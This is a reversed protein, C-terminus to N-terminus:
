IAISKKAYNVVDDEDDSLVAVKIGNDIINSIAFSNSSNNSTATNYINYASFGISLLNKLGSASIYSKFLDVFSTNQLIQKATLTPLHEALAQKAIEKSGGTEITSTLSLLSGLIQMNKDGAFGGLTGVLSGFVSLGLMEPSMGVSIGAYITIAIVVIIEVIQIVTDYWYGNEHINLKFQSDWNDVFDIRNQVLNGDDLYVLPLYMMYGNDIYNANTIIGGDSYGWKIPANYQICTGDAYIIVRSSLSSIPVATATDLQLNAKLADPIIIPAPVNIDTVISGHIPVMDPIGGVKPQSTFRPDTTNTFDIYETILSGAPTIVVGNADVYDVLKIVTTTGHTYTIKTFWDITNGSVQYPSSVDSILSLGFSDYQYWTGNGNIHWGMQSKVSNVPETGKPRIECIDHYIGSSSGPNGQYPSNPNQGVFLQNLGLDYFSDRNYPNTSGSKINYSMIARAPRGNVTLTYPVLDYRGKRWLQKHLLEYMKGYGILTSIVATKFSVELNDNKIILAKIKM